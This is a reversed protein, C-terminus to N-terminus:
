MHSDTRNAAVAGDVHIQQRRAIVGARGALVDLAPQRKSLGAFVARRPFRQHRVIRERSHEAPHAIVRALVATVATVEISRHADMRHLPEKTVQRRGFAPADGGGGGGALPHQDNARPGTAKGCGIVQRPQAMGHFDVLGGRLRAPHQM